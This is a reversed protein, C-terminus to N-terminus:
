DKYQYEPIIIKFGKSKIIEFDRSLLQGIFQERTKAYHKALTRSEYMHLVWPAVEVAWYYEKM